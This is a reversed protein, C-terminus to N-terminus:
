KGIKARWYRENSEADAEDLCADCGCTDSHKLRLESAPTQRPDVRWLGDDRPDRTFNPDSRTRAALDQFTRAGPGFLPERLDEAPEPNDPDGGSLIIKTRRTAEYQLDAEEAHRLRWRLLVVWAAAIFAGVISTAVVIWGSADLTCHTAGGSSSHLVPCSSCQSASASPM